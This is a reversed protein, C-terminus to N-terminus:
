LAFPHEPYGIVESKYHMLMTQIEFAGVTNAYHILYDIHVATMVKARLLAQLCSINNKAILPKFARKEYWRLYKVALESKHRIILLVALPIKLTSDEVISFFLESSKKDDATMTLLAYDYDIPEWVKRKLIIEVMMDQVHFFIKCGKWSFANQSIYKVHEGFHVEGLEVCVGEEIRTVSEPLMVCKETGKYGCLIGNVVVCDDEYSEYWRTETFADRGIEQISEPITLFALERCGSFAKGCIHTIGEPVDACVAETNKYRYLITYLTVWESPYNELWATGEFANSGIHRVSKPVDISRLATCGWFANKGIIEVGEPIIITELAFCNQFAGCGIKRLTSPLIIRRLSECNGFAVHRIETVGEPIVISKLHRFSSCAQDGIIKVGDPIVIEAENKSEKRYKLLVGQESIDFGM